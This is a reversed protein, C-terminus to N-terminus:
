SKEVKLKLKKYTDDTVYRTKGNHKKRKSTIVVNELRGQKQEVYGQEILWKLEEKNVAQM